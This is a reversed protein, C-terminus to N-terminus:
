RGAGPPTAGEGTPVNPDVIRRYGARISAYMRGPLIRKMVIVAGHFLCQFLHQLARFVTRFIHRAVAQVLPWICSPKRVLFALHQRMEASWAGRPLTRRERWVFCQGWVIMNALRRKDSQSMVVWELVDRSFQLTKLEQAARNLRRFVGGPHIRYASPAIDEVYGALGQQTALIAMARDGFFTKRTWAPLDVIHKARYMVTSTPPVPFTWRVIDSRTLFRKMVMPLHSNEIIANNSDVMHRDHFCMACEPHADLYDVQKQLKLPDTWYDDGECMAIYKGRCAGLVGWGPKLKQSYLNERSLRLRIKDPHRRQYECVIDRTRDTSKDEGVVIEYPFDVQQMLVGDLAQSIYKEHNYTIVFVSVLPQLPLRSGDEVKDVLSEIKQLFHDM